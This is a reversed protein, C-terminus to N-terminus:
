TVSVEQQTHPLEEPIKFGEQRGEADGKLDRLVKGIEGWTLPLDQGSPSRGTGAKLSPTHPQRGFERKKKEEEPFFGYLSKLILIVLSKLMFFIIILVIIKNIM